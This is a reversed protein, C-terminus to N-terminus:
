LQAVVKQELLAPPYLGQLKEKLRGDRGILFSTPLAWVGGYAKAERDGGILMPYNVGFRKAIAMAKGGEPDDMNIAVVRFRRDGYKEHLEVLTPIELICPQCWTAWFVLLTVMGDDPSLSYTGGEYTPLSLPPAQGSPREPGCAAALVALAAL